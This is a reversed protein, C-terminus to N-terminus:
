HAHGLVVEVYVVAQMTLVGFVVTAVQAAGAPGGRASGHHLAPIFDAAAIYIFGGAALPLLLALADVAYLGVLLTAAVGLIVTLACFFNLMVARGPSYGGCILAGVDGIEQPIEHLVIAATTAWGLVPDAAFSGAILMGDIFNHVGDGVLNMRAMPQVPGVGAAIAAAVPLRAHDHRWRVLKEIAFFLVMGCVVLLGVHSVSGIREVAEPILHIFADGLLVGVALAVLLPTLRHLWAERLVLVFAGSLSVSAVLLGALLAHSVATATIEMLPHKRQQRADTIDFVSLEDSDGGIVLWRDGPSFAVNTTTSILDHTSPSVVQQDPHRLLRLADLGISTQREGRHRWALGTARSGHDPCHRATTGAPWLKIGRVAVAAGASTALGRGGRNWGLERVKCHFRSMDARADSRLRWFHGGVERNFFIVDRVFSATAPNRCVAEIRHPPGPSIEPIM